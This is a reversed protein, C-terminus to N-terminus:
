TMRRMSYRAVHARHGHATEVQVLASDILWGDHKLQHVLAALRSTGFRQWADLSTLSEGRLLADLVSRKISGAAPWTRQADDPSSLEPSHASDNDPSTKPKGVLGAQWGAEDRKPIM